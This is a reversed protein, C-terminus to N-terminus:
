KVFQNTSDPKPAYKKFHFVENISRNESGDCRSSQSFIFTSDNVIVGKRQYVYFYNEAPYWQELLITSDKIEYIGWDTKVNKYNSLFYQSILQAPNGNFVSSDVVGPNLIVGNQYLFLLQYASGNGYSYYYLGDLQISSGTNTTRASCLPDDNRERCKKCSFVFLFYLLFINKM